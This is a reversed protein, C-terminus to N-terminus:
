ALLKKYKELNARRAIKGNLTRELWNKGVFFVGALTVELGAHIRQRLDRELSAQEEGSLPHELACVMVVRESGLAEDMVGLAVVRDKLIGPISGAINELDEPYVNHGGVIILDKKRGCVYVSGAAIYGLDGTFYWGDKVVRSSLEQCRHYGSFLSRSRLIIEGVHREPLRRGQEDVIAVQTNEM